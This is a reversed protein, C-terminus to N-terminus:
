QPLKLEYRIAYAPHNFGPPPPASLVASDGNVQYLFPKGTAPDLPLPADTIAELSTPLKGEHAHAYLRIAEICQIADLQRELRTSVLRVSNLAPTLSLFLSLFPNALKENVTSYVARDIRNYSQWYPVNIWKYTDDRIRQYKEMSDLAAVQIIPMAEVQAEPRGRAILARKAEPYIKAAMAAIGLRRSLEPLDMTVAGGGAFPVGSSFSPLKRQLTDAFRRAQDLGWAGRDLDSLEPLEKELLYREGEISRRMDIFPRPRDALAWYLSPGSPAQILNELCRTMVSDISVGVLAQIMLPGQSVHRGMVLGTEIWHMALDTKGDLIALRAQLQILRALQRMEQIEPLQLSIGEKRQDFEWDCTSRLVGIEVEKLAIQFRELYNRAKDRPIEGIPCSLWTDSALRDVSDPFAGPQAKEKARLSSYTETMIIVSRYYFIAANGPVLTIQEPVLRYQLAPVPEAAPRLIIVTPQRDPPPQASAASPWGAAVWLLLAITRRM